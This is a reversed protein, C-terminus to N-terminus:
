AALKDTAVKDNARARLLSSLTGSHAGCLDSAMHPQAPTRRRWMCEIPVHDLEAEAGNHECIPALLHLRFLEISQVVANM